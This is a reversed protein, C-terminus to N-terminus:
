LSMLFSIASKFSTYWATVSSSPIFAKICNLSFHTLDYGDQTFLQSSLQSIREVKKAYGGSIRRIIYVVFIISHNFRWNLFIVFLLGDNVLSSENFFISYRADFFITSCQVQLHRFRSLTKFWSFIMIWSLIAPQNAKLITNGPHITPMWTQRCAYRREVRPYGGICALCGDSKM